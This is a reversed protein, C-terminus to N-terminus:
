YVVVTAQSFQRRGLRECANDSTEATKEYANPVVLNVENMLCCFFEQDTLINSSLKVSTLDQKLRSFHKIFVRKLFENPRSTVLFKLKTANKISLYNALYEVLGKCSSEACEDLADIVCIITGSKPDAAAKVLISWLSAFLLPLKEKNIKYEAVAYRLLAHNQRFLQHLIACLVRIKTATM